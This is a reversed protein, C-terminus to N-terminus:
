TGKLSNVSFGSADRCLWLVATTVRDLGPAFNSKCGNRSWFLLRSILNIYIYM